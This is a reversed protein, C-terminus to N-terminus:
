NVLKDRALKNQVFRVCLYVEFVDNPPLVLFILDKLAYVVGNIRLKCGYSVFDQGLM